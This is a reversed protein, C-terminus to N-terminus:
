SSRSQLLSLCQIFTASHLCAHPEPCSCGKRGGSGERRVRSSSSYEQGPDGAGAFSIRGNVSSWSSVQAEVTPRLLIREHRPVRAVQRGLEALVGGGPSWFPKSQTLHSQTQFPFARPLTGPQSRSILALIPATEWHSGSKESRSACYSIM